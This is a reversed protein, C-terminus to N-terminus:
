PLELPTPPRNALRDSVRTRTDLWTSRTRSSKPRPLRPSCYADPQYLRTTGISVTGVELGIAFSDWLLSAPVELVELGKVRLRVAPMARPRGVATAARFLTQVLRFM